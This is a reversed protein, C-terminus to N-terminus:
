PHIELRVGDTTWRQRVTVTTQTKFRREAFQFPYHVGHSFTGNGDADVFVDVTYTGPPISEIHWSEGSSVKICAITTGKVDRFRAFYSFEGIGHDIFDGSVSGPRIRDETTDATKATDPLEQQASPSPGLLIDIRQRLGKSLHVDAPAMGYEENGDAMGNRNDDRIAIVRYWGEALGGLEYTGQSGVPVQYPAETKLANFTSDLTEAHPYVLIRCNTFSPADLVGYISGSDIDPGTSFIINIAQLPTNGKVDTWNTGITISYTTNPQLEEDPYIELENGGYQTRIRAKPLISVDNRISRDIYDDFSIVFTPKQLNVSGSPPTISVVAAPTVDRPGGDPAVKLACGGLLTLLIALTRLLM